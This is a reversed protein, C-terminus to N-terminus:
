NLLESLTDWETMDNEIQTELESVRDELEKFKSASSYYEPLLMKSKLDEIEKEAEDVATELQRLRNKKKRLDSEAAKKQQYSLKSETPAEESKAVTAAEKKHELYFDYDGHYNVAGDASLELVRTAVQNIFYRDHSVFFITGEYERLNIELVERSEIDLHNTPEDLLLFNAQGLMIKCLSVRAKEGGSLDGIRTFVDDGRFLFCGLINRIEPITKDPFTDYIEDLISKDPSLTAQQQDYYGPVVNVGLRLDGGSPAEEKMIMKFLTTKGIGNPGILAVKEGRRIEFSVDSFLPHNEFSKSLDEATLVVQGSEVRPTFHLKMSGDLTVPKDILEMKELAKERSEARKIFKERGFSRLKRIVEQQHKIETQQAEYAREEIKQRFEKERTYYTYNGHYLFARGAEIELTATTIRDLFYRDHSIILCAGQYSSLFSELFSLAEIDLHNTPEDMLLLDPAQLLLKALLVRTKQGGSLSSVPLAYEAESFGLGALMGRVRSRYQYGDAQEFQQVCSAYASLLEESHDTQMAAELSRMKEELAIVPAFVSLLEDEIRSESEFVPNQPLYGINLGKQLYIEGEDPREQGMILKFLTTKGAGNMGILAMKEKAELHFSVGSLVQKSDFSKSLNSVSLIM